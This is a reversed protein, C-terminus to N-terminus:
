AIPHHSIPLMRLNLNPKSISAHTDSLKQAQKVQKRKEMEEGGGVGRIGGMATLLLLRKPSLVELLLGGGWGWWFLKRNQCKVHSCFVCSAGLIVCHLPCPTDYHLFCSCRSFLFGNISFLARLYVLILSFFETLKEIELTFLNSFSNALHVDIDACLNGKSPPSKDVDCDYPHTM